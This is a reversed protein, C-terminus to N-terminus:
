GVCSQADVPWSEVRGDDDVVTLVRSLNAVVCSHNPVIVLPEGIRPPRGEHAVFGHEESLGTVTMAPGGDLRAALGYGALRASGHPGRDSSLVKSGADVIAHVGNVSVVTALVALAIDAPEAVGLSVQTLDMFVANGPRIEDIGAFSEALWVTPTSGVSVVPVAIGAARLREALGTMTRREDDAAARVGDPGDAQYAHGAHSLLGAFALRPAAAITRALGAAAEGAPDVGCRHLGVDVKVMVDVPRGAEDAAAAIAAVGARSDAILRLRAGVAGAATLIRVIKRRDVLPHAITLDSFGGDLFVQAEATKAVTLGTAGADRQMRGIALSKHTKAHPRLAVGAARAITGMRAVNRTLVTRDVLVAPTELAGLGPREHFVTKM